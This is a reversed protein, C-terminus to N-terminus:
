QRRRASRGALIPRPSPAAALQLAIIHHGQPSIAFSQYAGAPPSYTPPERDEDPPETSNTKPVELSSQDTSMNSLDSPVTALHSGSDQASDFPKTYAANLLRLNAATLRFCTFPLVYTHRTTHGVEAM